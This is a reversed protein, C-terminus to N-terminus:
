HLSIITLGLSLCKAKRKKNLESGLCKSIHTRAETYTNIYTYIHKHM